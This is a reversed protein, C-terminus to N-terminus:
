LRLFIPLEAPVPAGPARPQMDNPNFSVFPAIYPFNSSQRKLLSNIDFRTRYQSKPGRFLAYLGCLVLLTSFLYRLRVLAAISIMDMIQSNLQAKPVTQAFDYVQAFSVQQPPVRGVGPMVYVIEDTNIFFHTLWMEGIRLYRIVNRINQSEFTWFLVLLGAVVIGLLVWGIAGDHSSPKDQGAM